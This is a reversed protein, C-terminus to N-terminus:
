EVEASGIDLRNGAEVDLDMEPFYVLGEEAVVEGAILAREALVVITQNQM